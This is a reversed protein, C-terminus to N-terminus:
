LAAAVYRLMSDDASAACDAGLEVYEEGGCDGLRAEGLEGRGPWACSGAAVGDSLKASMGVRLGEGHPGRPLGGRGSREDIAFSRRM